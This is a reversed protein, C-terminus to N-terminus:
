KGICFRSFIAGLIEDNTIQGTIEGMLSLIQHIDTSLLDKPLGKKISSEIESISDLISKLVSYHRANSIVTQEGSYKGLDLMSIIRSKLDDIHYHFKSSIYVIHEFKSSFDLILKEKESDDIKDLKNATLLLPKKIQLKQIELGLETTTTKTIDFLYIIIDATVLKEMTKEIGRLEIEDTTATLGATDAFRFSIGNISISDEIFDRTTGPIKSTIARDENLLANLLTSKGANPKGAIVVSVGKKIVNGLSFSDALGTIEKKIDDLLSVLQENSAFEVNEEGFDIELEFLSTLEVLQERLTKMRSSFGGRFQDVALKHAMRNESDIIDAVSEAQALDIKGNIFARFTFEGPEALRAGKSILLNLIANLIFLSGHCSIEVVDEGTYSAPNRFVSVLVQDLTEEQDNIIKGLHITHSPVERLDKGKFVSSSIELSDRGSIRIVGIAGKGPATAIAAINDNNLYKFM